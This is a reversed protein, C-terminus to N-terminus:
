MNNCLINMTSTASEMDFYSSLHDICIDQLAHDMLSRSSHSLYWGTICSHAGSCALGLCSACDTNEQRTLQTEIVLARSGCVLRGPAFDVWGRQWAGKHSVSVCCSLRSPAQCVRVPCMSLGYIPVKNFDRWNAEM